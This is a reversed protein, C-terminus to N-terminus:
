GGVLGVGHRHAAKMLDRDLTALPSRLREALEVYAADYASLANERAIGLIRESHPARDIAINLRDVDRLFDTADAHSIRKRRENVLLVNRIEFWWLAPVIAQDNRIRELAAGAIGADEDRLAWCATVSADMVFPM